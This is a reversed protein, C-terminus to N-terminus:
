WFGSAAVLGGKECIRARLNLLHLTVRWLDSPKKITLSPNLRPFPLHGKIVLCRQRTVVSISCSPPACSMLDSTLGNWTLWCSMLVLSTFSEPAPPPFLVSLSIQPQQELVARYSRLSCCALGQTVVM